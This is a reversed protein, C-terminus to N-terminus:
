SVDVNFPGTVGEETLLDASITMTRTTDDVAVDLDRVAIIGEITLTYNTIRSVVNDLDYNKVLIEETWPLGRTEDFDWEGLHTKYAIAVRQIMEEIGDTVEALKGEEIPIDWETQDLKFDM